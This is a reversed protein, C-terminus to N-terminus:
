KNFQKAWVDRTSQRNTTNADSTGTVVPAAGRPSVAPLKDIIAKIGANDQVCLQVWKERAENDDKIKGAKIAAEVVAEAAAKANAVITDNAAKLKAELDAVKESNEKNTNAVAAFAAGFQAVATDESVDTSAILKADVLAKILNKMENQTPQNTSASQGGSIELVAQIKPPVAGFASLDFHAAVKAAGMVEDVLGWEKAEDATFWTTADLAAGIVEASKGTKTAYANILRTRYKELVDAAERLDKSTGAAMTSPNHIMLASNATAIVKGAALIVVSGMSAALGMVKATVKERRESLLDYIGFGEDVSGGRCNVRLLISRNAPIAKLEKAFDALNVGYAAIDDFIEIEASSSESKNSVTFWTKM